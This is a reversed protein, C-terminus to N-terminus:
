SNSNANQKNLRLHKKEKILLGLTCNKFGVVCPVSPHRPVRFCGPFFIFLIYIRMFLRRLHKDLVCFGKLHIQGEAHRETYNALVNSRM